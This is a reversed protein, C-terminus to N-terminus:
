EPFSGLGACVCHYFRAMWSQESNYVKKQKQLKMIDEGSYIEWCCGITNELMELPCQSNYLVDPYTDMELARMTARQGWECVELMEIMINRRGFDTWIGISRDCKKGDVYGFYKEFKGLLDLLLETSSLEM